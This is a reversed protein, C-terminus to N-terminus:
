AVEYVATLLKADAQAKVPDYEKGTTLMTWVVKSLKRALAILSRGSGKHPKMARYSLVLRSLESKRSRIMGLAMQVFATRLEKPGGKTISGRYDKQDSQKMYPVIGAYMSLQNFHRFRKIDDIHARVTTAIILGTGPITLLLRVAEDDKVMEALHKEVTEKSEINREIAAVIDSLIMKDVTDTISDIVSQRGKKSNLLGANTEMGFSLLIGHAQNKLKVNVRVLMNRTALLRKLQESKRSCLKVEPLMDKELFEAITRADRRDSKNVSENVVKFKMTNVIKVPYGARQLCDRFYRTNGTSEVAVSVSVGKKRELELRQIFNTIGSSNTSYRNGGVLYGDMREATTFQHKHLDVGVSLNM